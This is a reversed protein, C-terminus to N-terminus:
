AITTVQAGALITVRDGYNDAIQVVSTPDYFYDLNTGNDVINGRVVAIGGVRIGVCGYIVNSIIQTGTINPQINQYIQWNWGAWSKNNRTITDRVFQTPASSCAYVVFLGWGFGINDEVIAGVCGDAVVIASYSGGSESCFVLVNNRVVTGLLEIASMNGGVSMGLRTSLILNNEILLTEPVACEFAETGIIINGTAQQHKASTNCGNGCNVMVNDAFTLRTFHEYSQVSFGTMNEFWCQSISLDHGTNGYIAEVWIAAQEGQTWNMPLNKGTFRLGSIEIDSTHRPIRLGHNTAGLVKVIDMTQHELHISAGNSRIRAGTPVDVMRSLKYAGSTAEIFVKGYDRLARILHDSIDAGAMSRLIYEDPAPHNATVTSQWITWAQSQTDTLLRSLVDNARQLTPVRQRVTNLLPEYIMPFERETEM